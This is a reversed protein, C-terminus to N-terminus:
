DQKPDNSLPMLWDSRKSNGERDTMTGAVGIEISSIGGRPVVATVEYNGKAAELGCEAFAETSEGTPGILRIFVECASFPKGSIEDALSWSVDIQSGEIATTSIPTHITAKVGEKAGALPAILIAIFLLLAVYTSAFRM